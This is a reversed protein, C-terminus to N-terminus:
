ECPEKGYQHKCGLHDHDLLDKGRYEPDRPQLTLKKNTRSVAKDRCVNRVDKFHDSDFFISLLFSSIFLRYTYLESM